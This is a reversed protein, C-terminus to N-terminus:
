MRSLSADLDGLGMRRGWYILVRRALAQAALRQVGLEAAEKADLTIMLADTEFGSTDFAGSDFAGDVKELQSVASHERNLIFHKAGNALHECIRPIAEVTREERHQATGASPWIWDILHNATVFFDWAPYVNLPEAIMRGYDYQMKQFLSQPDRVDFFGNFGYDGHVRPLVTV